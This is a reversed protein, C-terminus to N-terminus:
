LNNLKTIAAQLDKTEKTLEKMRLVLHILVKRITESLELCKVEEYQHVGQSLARHILLFSNHGSIYLSRPIMDKIADISASFSVLGKCKEVESITESAINEQKMVSILLDILTTRQNEVVRRYYVFAGIGFGLEELENGKLLMERDSQESLCRLVNNPIRCRFRPEQGIKKFTCNDGDPISLSLSYVFVKERCHRCKYHLHFFTPHNIAVDISTDFITQGQCNENDCDLKVSPFNIYRISTNPGSKSPITATALHLEKGISGNEIFDKLFGNAREYDPPIAVAAGDFLNGLKRMPMEQDGATEKFKRLHGIRSHAM